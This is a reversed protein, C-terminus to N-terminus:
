QDCAECQYIMGFTSGQRHVRAGCRSCPGPACCEASGRTHRMGDLLWTQQPEGDKVLAGHQAASIGFSRAQMEHVSAAYGKARERAVREADRSAGDPYGALTLARVIANHAGVLQFPAVGAGTREFTGLGWTTMVEADLLAGVADDVLDLLAPVDARAHVIFEADRMRPPYCGSDTKVIDNGDVDVIGECERDGSMIREGHTAKWPGPSAADARERIAKLDITPM